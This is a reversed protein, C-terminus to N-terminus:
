SFVTSRARVVTTLPRSQPDIPYFAYTWSSQTRQIRLLLTCSAFLTTNSKEASQQPASFSNKAAKFNKKADKATKKASKRDFAKADAESGPDGSRVGPHDACAIGM